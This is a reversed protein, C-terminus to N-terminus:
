FTRTHFLNLINVLFYVSYVYFVTKLFFISISTERNRINELCYFLFYANHWAMQCYFPESTM